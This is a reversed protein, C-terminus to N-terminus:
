KNKTKTYNILFYIYSLYFLVNYSYKNLYNSRNFIYFLVILVILICYMINFMKIVKPQIMLLFNAIKTNKLIEFLIIPLILVIILAIMIHKSEIYINNNSISIMYVGILYLFVLMIINSRIKNYLLMEEHKDNIKKVFFVNLLLIPFLMYHLGELIFM